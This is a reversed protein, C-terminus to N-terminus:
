LGIMGRYPVKSQSIGGAQLQLRTKLWIPNTVTSTIGGALASSILLYLAPLQKKNLRAEFYRKFDNYRNM